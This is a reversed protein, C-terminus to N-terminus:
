RVRRDTVTYYADDYIYFYYCLYETHYVHKDSGCIACMNVNVVPDHHRGTSHLVTINVNIIRYVIKGAGSRHLVTINM